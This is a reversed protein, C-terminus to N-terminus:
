TSEQEHHAIIGIGAALSHGTGHGVVDCTRREKPSKVVTNVANLNAAFMSRIWQLEARQESENPMPMTDALCSSNCAPRVHGPLSQLLAPVASIFNTIHLVM